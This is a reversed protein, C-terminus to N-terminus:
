CRGLKHLKPFQSLKLKTVAKMLKCVFLSSPHFVSWSIYSTALYLIIISVRKLLLFLWSFGCCWSQVCIGGKELPSSEKVLRLVCACPCSVTLFDTAFFLFLSLIFPFTNSHLTRHMEFGFYSFALKIKEIHDSSVESKMLHWNQEM